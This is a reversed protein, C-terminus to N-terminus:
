ATGLRIPSVCSGSAGRSISRSVRSPMSTSRRECSAVSIMWILRVCAPTADGYHESLHIVCRERSIQAYLPFNDGFRHTWDVRFGLFGVYHEMAKQEDFIRLIPIAAEM